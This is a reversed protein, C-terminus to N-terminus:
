AEAEAAVPEGTRDDLEEVLARVEMLALTLHGEIASAIDEPTELGDEPDVSTDKLWTIDLNDGRAAIEERTFRRFRGQEGQDSRPAEGHPDNGFCAVFDAFHAETIPSTKGYLHSRASARPPIGFPHRTVLDPGAPRHTHPGLRPGDRREDARRSYPDDPCPGSPPPSASAHVHEYTREM